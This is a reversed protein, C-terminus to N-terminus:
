QIMDTANPLTNDGYQWTIDYLEKEASMIDEARETNLSCSDPTVDKLWEQNMRRVLKAIVPDTIKKLNGKKELYETRAKDVEPFVGFAYYARQFDLLLQKEVNSIM